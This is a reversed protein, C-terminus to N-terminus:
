GPVSVPSDDLLNAIEADTTESFDEYWLSVAAFTLPTHLCVMEDVEDRLRNCTEIAAVPVAAVVRRPELKRLAMVAAHMTSGTALGDDVLIATCGHLDLPRRGRLYLAERRQLEREEQQTVEEIASPVIGLARIVDQNLVRVGGTAIAGMALERHGPVGLKRVVFVSLPVDLAAAIEHAVPVGGRPLALVRVDKRGAYEQLRAALQRGADQRNQFRVSM